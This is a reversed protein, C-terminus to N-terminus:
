VKMNQRVLKEMYGYEDMAKATFDYLSLARDLNQNEYAIKYYIDGSLFDTLARIGHLFPMLLVGFPLLETEKKTLFDANTSLGRIVAEFLDKEFTIKGLEKEDEAATNVVTRVADGFDFHFYGKMLTDLDILCLAKHSSKDFLINNLKTDNHCLRVPLDKQDWKKLIRLTDHTFEIAGSAKNKLAIASVDLAKKFQYERLELSHFEPITDAFEHIPAQQLLQHFKGIIKGAEFAIKEDTTTNYATCNDLYTMLRWCDNKKTRLYFAGKATKILSIRAYDPGTLYPLAKGINNMLGDVDPFVNTNIQQLIYHPGTEDSVLFTDNILGQSIPQLRYPKKEISFKHLLAVHHDNEM